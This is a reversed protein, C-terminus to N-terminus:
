AAKEINDQSNSCIYPALPKPRSSYAILDNINKYTLVPVIPGCIEQQMILMDATIDTLLTPHITRDVEELTGGGAIKAGKTM